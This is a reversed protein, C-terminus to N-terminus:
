PHRRESIDLESMIKIRSAIAQQMYKPLEMIEYLL